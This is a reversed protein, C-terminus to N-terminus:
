NNSHLRPPAQPPIVPMELKGAIDNFEDRSINELSVHRKKMEENFKVAKEQMHEHTDRSGGVLHFNEGKTIRSEEGKGDFGWGLLWKKHHKEAM